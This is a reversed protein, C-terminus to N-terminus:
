SALEPWEQVGERDVIRYAHDYPKIYQEFVCMDFFSNCVHRTIKKTRQCTYLFAVPYKMDIDGNPKNTM